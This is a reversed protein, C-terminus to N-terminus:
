KEEKICVLVKGKASLRRTKIEDVAEELSIVASIAKDADIIKNELLSIARSTTCPNIYSTKIVLEKTFAEYWKLGVVADKDSVGFLVVTAGRGAIDLSLEATVPIGVCEIVKDICTIGKEELVKKPDERVSDIFLDAGMDLANNRKSPDADLAVIKGAGFSKLLSIMIAGIAGCGVVAVTEGPILGLLDMGHLCCSLPETLAGDRLSLADPLPYVNEVPPCVYEAMGKVVGKSATCLHRKGKKCMDCCGCSWNPDVTVRDGKKFSTVDKGVEAVVGSIEHGLCVPYVVPRSGARGAFKHFDTGCIGCYSVAVKVCNDKLEPEPFDTVRLDGAGFLVAAKM